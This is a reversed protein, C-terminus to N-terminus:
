ALGERRAFSRAVFLTGTSGEEPEAESADWDICAQPIWQEDVDADECRVMVARPTVKRIEVELEVLEGLESTM